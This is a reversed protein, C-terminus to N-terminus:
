SSIPSKKVERYLTVPCLDLGGPWAVTRAEPDVFVREFEGAGCWRVFVGKGALDSVDVEGEVGDAFRVRLRYEPLPQVDVVDPM